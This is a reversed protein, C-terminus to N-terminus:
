ESHRVVWAPRIQLIRRNEAPIEDPYDGGQFRDAVVMLTNQPHTTTTDVDLNQIPKNNESSVFVTVIRGKGPMLTFNTPGLNAILGLTVCQILSDPRFGRFTFHEVRSGTYVASDAVIPVEGADLILPISLGVVKEDNSYSITVTWHHDDVRAVDAYVTDLVGFNDQQATVAMPILILLGTLIIPMFPSKM